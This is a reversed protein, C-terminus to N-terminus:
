TVRKVALVNCPANQLIAEGSTGLMARDMATHHEAGIVIVDSNDGRAFEALALGPAGPLFHRREAAVGYRDCIAAFNDIAISELTAYLEAAMEVGAGMPDMPIAAAVEFCHALHLEADSQLALSLAAHIIQDNLVEVAASTPQIDVAAVIRKPLAHALSNVLLLPVPCDRLLHWDLPTLLVRKILNEHTTDKIVLDPQYEQVHILIEELLSRTWVVESTASVGDRLLLMTEEKLRAIKEGIWSERAMKSESHDLKEAAAIVRNRDFLVMHLSAGSARALRAAREFAPTRRLTPDVILLIRQYNGPTLTLSSTM